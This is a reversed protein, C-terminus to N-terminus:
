EQNYEPGPGPFGSYIRDLTNRINTFDDIYSRIYDWHDRSDEEVGSQPGPLNDYTSKVLNMEKRLRCASEFEEVYATQIESNANSAATSKHTTNYDNYPHGYPYCLMNRSHSTSSPASLPSKSLPISLPSLPIGNYGSLSFVM